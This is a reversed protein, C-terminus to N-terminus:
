DIKVLDQFEPDVKAVQAATPAGNRPSMTIGPGFDRIIGHVNDPRIADGDRKSLDLVDTAKQCMEMQEGHYEAMAGHAAASKTHQNAMAAHTKSVDKGGDMGKHLKSLETHHAAMAAHHESKAEHHAAAAKHFANL